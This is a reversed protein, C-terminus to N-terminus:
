LYHMMWMAGTTLVLSSVLPVRWLKGPPQSQAFGPVDASEAPGPDQAVAGAQPEAGGALIEAPPAPPGAIRQAARRCIEGVGQLLDLTAEDNGTLRARLEAIERDKADLAARLPATRAENASDAASVATTAADSVAQRLEERFQNRLAELQTAVVGAVDQRITAIQEQLAQRGTEGGQRIAELEGSLQERLADGSQSSEAVVRTVEDRLAAFGEQMGQRGTEGSQRIAELEGSLQERLDFRFQSNQTIASDVEDRLAAVQEQMAQRGAEGNQRIAELEGSLQERLAVGSRASEAVVASVEERLAAFQQRAALRDSEAETRLAELQGAFQEQLEAGRSQFHDAVLGAVERRLAAFHEQIARRDAEASQRVAALRDTFQKQLEEIRAQLGDAISRDQQHLTKLEITVKAQLETIQREVQGAHEHLRADLANIVAELVKQDFPHAAAAGKEPSALALPRQEIEAIRQEMQELRLAVPGTDGPPAAVSGRGANQGLKMGVSFALGDGFAVALSRWVSSDRSNQM